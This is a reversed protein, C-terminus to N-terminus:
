RKRKLVWTGILSAIAIFILAWGAGTLESEWPDYLSTVFDGFAGDGVVSYFNHVKEERQLQEYAINLGQWSLSYKPLNRVSLYTEKLSLGSQLRYQVLDYRAEKVERLISESLEIKNNFLARM